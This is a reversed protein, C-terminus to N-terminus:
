PWVSLSGLKTPSKIRSLDKLLWLGAMQQIWEFQGETYSTLCRPASDRGGLDAIEVARGGRKINQSNWVPM